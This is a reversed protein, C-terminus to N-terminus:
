LRRPRKSWQEYSEGSAYKRERIFQGLSHLSVQTIEGEHRYVVNGLEDTFVLAPLSSIGKMESFETRSLQMGNPCVVGFTEDVRSTVVRFNEAIYTAARSDGELLSLVEDCAACNDEVMVMMLSKGEASASGAQEGLDLPEAASAALPALMVAFVSSKILDVLRIHKM